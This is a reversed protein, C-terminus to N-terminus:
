YSGFVSACACVCMRVICVCVCAHLEREREREREIQSHTHTKGARELKGALIYVVGVCLCCRTILVVRGRERGEGEIHIEM